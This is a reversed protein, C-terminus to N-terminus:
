EDEEDEEGEGEGEGAGERKLNRKGHITAVLVEEPAEGVPSINEPWKIAAGSIKDGVNMGTLDAEIALPLENATTTCTIDRKIVNVYGGKKLGPSDEENIYKVPIKIPRDPKFRLYNASIIAENVTVRAFLCSLHTPRVDSGVLRTSM